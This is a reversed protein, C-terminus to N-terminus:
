LPSFRIGENDDFLVPNNNTRNGVSDSLNKIYYMCYILVSGAGSMVCIYRYSLGEVGVTVSYYFTYDCILIVPHTYTHATKRFTCCIMDTFDVM